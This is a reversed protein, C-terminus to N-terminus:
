EMEAFGDEPAFPLPKDAMELFDREDWRAKM